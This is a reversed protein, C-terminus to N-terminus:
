VIIVPIDKKRAYRITAWTGSRLEEKDPTKPLALLLSSHNVIDHNRDLYYNRGYIKDANDCFARKDDKNPPHIYIEYSLYYALEHAKADAGICDGHHMVEYDDHIALKRLTRYLDRLRNLSVNNMDQTGTFGLHKKAM